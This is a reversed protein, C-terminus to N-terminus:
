SPGVIRVAGLRVAHELWDGIRQQHTRTDAPQITGEEIMQDLMPQSSPGVGDYLAKAVTMAVEPMGTPPPSPATLKAPDICDTIDKAQAMRMTLDSIGFRTRLTAGISTHDLPTKCVYGKKVTPGIVFAPVRFGFQQFEEDADPAPPPPVHDFFGGHEDYIVILLTKNWAPSEALAKYVSAVFAQGRMIDHSPHDDSANFDPDIISFAPLTGASADDFFEDIKVSPNLSLVKGAFGGLYWSVAGAFYNKAELTAAKMRDWVTDPPNLFIPTNDKKGASTCAHLYFRNPWTPGMVSAYWHDCVAFNDALWYYFPIQTRDHFGMVENQSDGAHAKVFGDNKGEDFQAHAADWGHPPDAPTFNTLKYVTVDSGDPAPNSETGSLGEVTGSAAYGADSKLSGLFHDFSRNEMMLVVIHEIGALLQESTPPPTVPPPDAPPSAAPPPATGTGSAPPVAPGAPAGEDPVAETSGCAAAALGFGATLGLAKRRSVRADSSMVVVEM